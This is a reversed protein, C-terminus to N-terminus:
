RRSSRKTSAPAPAAPISAGIVSMGSAKSPRRRPKGSAPANVSSRRCISTGPRNKTVQMPAGFSFAYSKAVLRPPVPRIPGRKERIILSTHSQHPGIVATVPNTV